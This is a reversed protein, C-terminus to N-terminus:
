RGRHRAFAVLLFFGLLILGGGLYAYPEPEFRLVVGGIWCAFVIAVQVLEIFTPRRFPLRSPRPAPDM